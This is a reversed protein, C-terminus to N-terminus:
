QGVDLGLMHQVLHLPHQRDHVFADGPDNGAFVAIDRGRRHYTDGHAVVHNRPCDAVLEESFQAVGRAEARM